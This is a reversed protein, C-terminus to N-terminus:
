GKYITMGAPCPVSTRLSWMHVGHEEAQIQSRMCEVRFWEITRLLNSIIALKQVIVIDMQDELISILRSIVISQLFQGRPWWQRCLWGQLHLELGGVVTGAAHGGALQSIILFAM